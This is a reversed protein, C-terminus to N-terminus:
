FIPKRLCNSMLRVSVTRVVVQAPALATVTSASADPTPPAVTVSDNVLMFRQLTEHRKKNSPSIPLVLAATRTAHNEKWQFPPQLEAPLTSSRQRTEKFLGHPFNTAITSLCQTLGPLDNALLALKPQHVQFRYVQQHQLLVTKIVTKPDFLKRAATRLRSYTTVAKHESLWSQITREPIQFHFRERM